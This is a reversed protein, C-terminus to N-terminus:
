FVLKLAVLEATLKPLIDYSLKHQLETKGFDIFTKLLVVGRVLWKKNNKLVSVSSYSVTQSTREDLSLIKDFSDYYPYYVAHNRHSITSISLYYILEM